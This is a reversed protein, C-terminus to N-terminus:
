DFLNHEFIFNNLRATSAIHRVIRDQGNIFTNNVMLLTDCSTNRLDVARGDGVGKWPAAGSNAFICNTVNISRIGAFTRLDAQYAHEFICGDVTLTYDGSVGYVILEKPAGYTFSAYEPDLDFIGNIAINKLYVSGQADIFDIPVNSGGAEVAGYIIPLDGETDEAKIRVDWGINKIVGNFFWTGGRQLVYVRDLDARSGDSLTDGMIIENIYTIETPSSLYMEHQAFLKSGFFLLFVTTLLYYFSKKM